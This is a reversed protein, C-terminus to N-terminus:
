HDAKGLKEAEMGEIEQQILKDKEAAEQTEQAKMIEEEEEQEELV